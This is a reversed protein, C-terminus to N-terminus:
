KLVNEDETDKTGLCNRGFASGSSRIRFTYISTKM